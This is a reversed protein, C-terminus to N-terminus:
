PQLTSAPVMVRSEGVTLKMVTMPSVCNFRKVDTMGAFAPIWHGFDNFNNRTREGHLM